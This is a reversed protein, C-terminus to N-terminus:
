ADIQSQTCASSRHGGVIKMTAAGANIPGLVVGAGPIISLFGTAVNIGNGADTLTSGCGASSAGLAQSEEAFIDVFAQIDLPALAHNITLSPDGTEWDAGLAWEVRNHRGVTSTKGRIHLRRTTTQSAGAEDTVTVSASYRGPHLLVHAVSSQTPGPAQIEQPHERKRSIKAVAYEYHAIETHRGRSRRADLRIWNPADRDRTLNELRLRAKPRRPQEEEHRDDDDDDHRDGREHRDDAEEHRREETFGRDESMASAWRAASRGREQFAAAESASRRDNSRDAYAPLATGVSLLTFIIFFHLTNM